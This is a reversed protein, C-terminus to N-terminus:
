GIAGARRIKWPSLLAAAGSRRFFAAHNTEFEMIMEGDQMKTQSDVPTYLIAAFRILAEDKIEQPAEPAYRQIYTAAAKCIDDVLERDDAAGIAQRNVQERASQLAVPSTPWPVLSM